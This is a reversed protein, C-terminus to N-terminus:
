LPPGPAVEQVDFGTRTAKMGTPQYRFRTNATLSSEQFIPHYQTQTTSLTADYVVPIVQIM